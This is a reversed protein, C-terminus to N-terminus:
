FVEDDSYGNTETEVSNNSDEGEAEPIYQFNGTNLDVKYSLIKGNETDRSKVLHLKFLDAKREIFIIVTADQAIKDSQALQTTDFDKGEVTSRNQQCVSIIPIQKITQLLKLDTSINSAREVPNKAKRDDSLLSHQDIYLVDLNYKEIFARLASVGAAGNIDKPTLVYCTLNKQKLDDLFKKYENKVSAGGHILAGNSLHGILTDARYGVKNASMEGSYIGVRKGQLAAAIASKILFWSKGIGTRAVITALEEKVDWGGIVNDIEKFGTTIFYKDYNETRELYADYRSTDEFLNICNLSVAQSSKEATEKVLMLAKEIADKDGSMLLPRLQNYNNTLDRRIKDNYLEELLYTTPENVEIIDFDEFKSTFTEIDPLCGYSDLHEKIFRFEPIYEPFYDANLNNLTIISSDKDQLIKNLTQLQVM